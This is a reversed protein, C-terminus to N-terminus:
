LAAADGLTKFVLSHNGPSTWRRGSTGTRLRRSSDRTAAPIVEGDTTPGFRPHLRRSRRRETARSDGSGDASPARSRFSSRIGSSRSSDDQRRRLRVPPIRRVAEVGVARMHAYDSDWGWLRDTIGVVDEFERPGGSSFFDELTIATRGTRSRPFCSGRTGRRRAGALRAGNSPRVIHDTTFARYFPSSRERAAPSPTTTTAPTRERADLLGPDRTRRRRLDRHMGLRIRWPLGLALPLAAVLVLVQFAPRALATAATAAGVVAFRAYSPALWARAIALAWAAFAAAAVPESAPTSSSGTARICSCRWRPLLAARPGFALATRTWSVVSAAFLLAM